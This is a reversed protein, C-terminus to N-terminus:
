PLAATPEAPSALDQGLAHAADLVQDTTMDLDRLLMAHLDDGTAPTDRQALEDFIDRLPRHRTWLEIVLFAAGPLHDAQENPLPEDMWRSWRFLTDRVSPHQLAQDVQLAPLNREYLSPNHERPYSLRLWRSVGAQFWRTRGEADADLEIPALGRIVHGALLDPVDGQLLAMLDSDPALPAPTDTPLIAWAVGAWSEEEPVKYHHTVSPPVEDVLLVHMLVPHLPVLGTHDVVHARASAMHERIADLMAVDFGPLTLGETIRMEWLLTDGDSASLRNSPAPNPLTVPPVETGDAQVTVSELTWSTVRSTSSQTEADPSVAQVGKIIAYDLVLFTAVAATGLLLSRMKM